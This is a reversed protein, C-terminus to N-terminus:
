PSFTRRLTITKKIDLPPLSALSPYQNARCWQNLSKQLSKSSTKDAVAILLSFTQRGNEAEGVNAPGAIKFSTGTSSAPVVECSGLTIAQSLPYYRLNPQQLLIWITEEEVLPHQVLLTVRKPLEAGDGLETNAGDALCLKWLKSSHNQWNATVPVGLTLLLLVATLAPNKFFRSRVLKRTSSLLALLIPILVGLAGIVDGTGSCFNHM